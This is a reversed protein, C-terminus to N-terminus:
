PIVDQTAAFVREQDQSDGSPTTGGFAHPVGEPEVYMFRTADGFPTSDRFKVAQSRTISLAGRSTSGDRIAIRNNLSVLLTNSYLKGLVATPCTFWNNRPYITAMLLSVIAVTTTLINTEITLRVIRSLAHDSFYGDGAKRRRTLYYLMMATILMDALITSILWTQVILWLYILRRVFCGWWHLSGSRGGM